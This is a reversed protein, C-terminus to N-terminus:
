RKGTQMKTKSKLHTEVILIWVETWESLELPPLVVGADPGGQFAPFPYGVPGPCEIFAAQLYSGASVQIKYILYGTLFLIKYSSFKNLSNLLISNIFNHM